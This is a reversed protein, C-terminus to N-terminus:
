VSFYCLERLIIFLTNEKEHKGFLSNDKSKYLNAFM